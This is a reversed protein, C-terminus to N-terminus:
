DVPPFSGTTRIHDLTQRLGHRLVAKRCLSFGKMYNLNQIVDEYFVPEEIQHRFFEGLKKEIDFGSNMEFELWMHALVQSMAKRVLSSMHVTGFFNLQLWADMTSCAMISGALLRPLGTLILISTVEHFPNLKWKKKKWVICGQTAGGALFQRTVRGNKEGKNMAKFLEEKDVLYIRINKKPIKLYFIDQVQLFLAECDNAEKIASDRCELCLSRGDNLFYYRTNRPQLRECSCCKPTGDEEHSPCSRQPWFHHVLFKNNFGGDSNSRIVKECVVCLSHRLKMYCSIHSAHNELKTFKMLPHNENGDYPHFDENDQLGLLQHREEINHEILLPEKRTTIIIRSGLGFWDKKGALIQLQNLQDVDDIVLLVKGGYGRKKLLKKSLTARM